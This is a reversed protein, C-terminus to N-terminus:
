KNKRFYKDIYTQKLPEGKIASETFDYDDKHILFIIIGLILIMDFLPSILPHDSGELNSFKFIKYCFLIGLLIIVLLRASDIKSNMKKPSYANKSFHDESM